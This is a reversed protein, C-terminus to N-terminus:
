SFPLRRLVRSGPDWRLPRGWLGEFAGADMLRDSVVRSVEMEAILATIAAGRARYGRAERWQGAQEVLLLTPVGLRRAMQERHRVEDDGAPAIGVLRACQVLRRGQTRWHAPDAPPGRPWALGAAADIAAGFVTGSFSPRAVPAAAPAEEGSPGERVLAGDAGVPAVAIRGFPVHGPPYLTFAKRHLGCRVVALPFCPGTKRVRHHDVWLWCVAGGAEHRPCMSPMSAVMVGDADPAYPTVTFACRAVAEVEHCEPM